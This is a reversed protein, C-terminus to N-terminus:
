FFLFNNTLVCGQACWLYQRINYPIPVRPTSRPRQLGTECDSKRLVNKVRTRSQTHRVGRPEQAHRRGVRHRSVSRCDNPISRPRLYISDDSQNTPRNADTSILIIVRWQRFRLRCAALRVLERCDTSQLFLFCRGNFRVENWPRTHRATTITWSRM